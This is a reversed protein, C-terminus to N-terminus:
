PDLGIRFVGHSKVNEPLAEKKEGACRLYFDAIRV